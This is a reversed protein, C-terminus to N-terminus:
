NNENLIDKYLNADIRKLKELIFEQFDADKRSLYSEVFKIRDKNIISIIAEEAAARVRASDDELFTLLPDLCEIEGIYGLALCTASRVFWVGRKAENMIPEIINKGFHALAKAVYDRLHWSNNSLLKLLEKEAQKGGNEVLADVARLRKKIDKSNLDKMIEEFTPKKDTTNKRNAMKGGTSKITEKITKLLKDIGTKKLASIFLVNRELKIKKIKSKKILDIKNIAIVRPYRILRPNYDKLENIIALYDHEINNSTADLLILLLKTREIHRLFELGLGKGTSAGEIIGPIDAFTLHTYDPLEVVGLNPALTTFPYNAIKPRAKSIKALLTSKGVNPYGVIGVDAISKLELIIRRVIGNEGETAFEPTRLQPTAFHANGKGGAGGEAIIKEDGPKLLDCILNNHEDFIITGPPVKIIKDKGNKGHMKKGKGNKGNEAKIHPTHRLHYLNNINSDVRLIVNGGMGGDGGDPGGKPAFKERRFSVIGNGGKGSEVIISVKDVFM